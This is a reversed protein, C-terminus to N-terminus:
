WRDLSAGGGLEGVKAKEDGLWTARGQHWIAEDALKTAVRDAISYPDISMTAGPSSTRASQISVRLASAIPSATPSIRRTSRVAASEEAFARAVLRCRLEGFSDGDLRGEAM